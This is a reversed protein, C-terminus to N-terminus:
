QLSLVFQPTFADLPPFTGPAVSAMPPHQQDTSYLLQGARAQFVVQYTGPYLYHFNTGQIPGVSCAQEVGAGEYVFSGDPAQLNVYVSTVGAQACDLYAMGNWFTWRVPLGGVGWQLDFQQSATTGPIVTLDSVLRYYFFGYTDRAALDIRHTGGVLGSVLVGQSTQGEACPVEFPTGDDIRVQVLSVAPEASCPRGGPLSWTLAVSGPAAASPVLEVDVTVSGNVVFSGSAEYLILGASNRAQIDYRYTGPGFDLLTIGASGANLCGYTGHNELAQGPIQVTVQTVEPLVACGYGAGRFSWLFTVDGHSGHPTSSGGRIVCSSGGVVVALLFMPVFRFPTRMPEEVNPRM